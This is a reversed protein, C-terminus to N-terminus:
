RKVLKIMYEGYSNGKMPEALRLMDDDSIWGKRWAIEELCAVQVGQRTEVVEVFRSADFLSEQTGTDLWAFGRGLVQLKLEGDRRFADNVSTIELEGRASPKISKAVDVVKNPYFYLGVVAYNSKPTAPKEEISLVNCEADIEAVGFREPDQVQYGFITAKSEKEAVEVARKLMGTFGQGYFINDGLVLCVADNGIFKEGIIFAEALGNPQPQEAYEFRVGYDSGDGLLRRFGPLDHPTSIILIERIGALMLVSIPYYIMPKDYVPLLQKSIGKTIPYLRTGNGGALVIGKM